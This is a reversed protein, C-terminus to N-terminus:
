DCKYQAEEEKSAQDFWEILQSTASELDRTPGQHFDCIFIRDHPLEDGLHVRSLRAYNSVCPLGEGRIETM